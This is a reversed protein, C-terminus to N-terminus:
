LHKFYRDSRKRGTRSDTSQLIFAAKGVIFPEPVLGFYRSDQSNFVNDGAVFYYNEKFTYSPLFKDDIIVSDGVVTLKQGCEWEILNHYVTATIHNLRMESGKAPVVLPGFDSITWPVISDNPFARM